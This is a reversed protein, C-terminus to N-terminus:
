EASRGGTSTPRSRSTAVGSCTRRITTGVLYHSDHFRFSEVAVVLVNPPSDKEVKVDFALPGHFGTTRRYLSDEEFLEYEETATHIYTEASAINGDAILPVFGQSSVFLAHTFLENLTANLGAYAVLASSAQSLALVLIPLVVLAAIVGGVRRSCCNTGAVVIEGVRGSCYKVGNQQPKVAVMGVLKEDGEDEAVAKDSTITSGLFAITESM